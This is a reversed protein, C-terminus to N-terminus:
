LSSPHKQQAATLICTKEQEAMPQFTDCSKDRGIAFCSFVQMRVAACCFCGLLKYHM